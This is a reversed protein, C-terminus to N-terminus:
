TTEADFLRTCELRVKCENEIVLEIAENVPSLSITGSVLESHEVTRGQPDAVLYHRVNNEAYITQKLGLDRDRTSDSLVEVAISPARELHRDPQDGCVVMVDPRVITDNSVIWDLNTYVECSCGNQEIEIGFQRAIRAVVREHPGFPSPSMSVPVGEILEWDGEWLQYDDVTYHPIYRPATSM